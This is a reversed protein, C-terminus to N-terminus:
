EDKKVEVLLKSINLDQRVSENSQIVLNANAIGDKLAEVISKGNMLGYIIGASFADGAGTADIFQQQKIKKIKKKYIQNKHIYIIDKGGNTLIINEIGTSILSDILEKESLNRDGFYAKAESQNVILLFIGELSKPMHTMKPESVGVIILKKYHAKAWQVLVHIGSKQVNMDAVFIDFDGIKSLQELMWQANMLQYISMDAYAIDMDGNFDLVAYYQGTRYGKAEQLNEVNMLHNMDIKLQRGIIDDGVVSMISVDQGLRALNEAVNRIVGGYNMSSTMPNSTHKILAQNPKFKYDIHAGGICLVRSQNESM